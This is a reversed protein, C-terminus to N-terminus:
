FFALVSLFVALALALKPANITTAASHPPREQPHPTSPSPAPSPTSPTSLGSPAPSPTSPSSLVSPSQSPTSSPSSFASPAPSATSPTSLASPAPSPTSSPSSSPAPSPTSPSALGSPAPSLSSVPNDVPTSLSSVVVEVKQGANCHGPIGCLFYYHGPRELTISDSGSDYAAIPSSPDCSEFGQKTVEIVNHYPSYSFLLTDGVHFEKSSWQHYDTGIIWGDPGGVEYAAGAAAGSCTGCLAMAVLLVLM